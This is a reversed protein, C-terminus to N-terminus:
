NYNLCVTSVGYLHDRKFDAGTSNRYHSQQTFHSMIREIQDLLYATFLTSFIPVGIAYIWSSLAHSKHSLLVPSM